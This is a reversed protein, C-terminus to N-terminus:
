LHEPKMLGDRSKPSDTEDIEDIDGFLRSAQALMRKTAHLEITPSPIGLEYDSDKEILGRSAAYDQNRELYGGVVTM